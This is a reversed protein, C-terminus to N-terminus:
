FDETISNLVSIYTGLSWHKPFASGCINRSSHFDLRVKTNKDENFVSFILGIFGEDMMQYMAQTQVDALCIDRQHSLSLYPIKNQSTLESLGLSVM